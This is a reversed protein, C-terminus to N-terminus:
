PHDDRYTYHDHLNRLFEADYRRIVLVILCLGAVLGAYQIGQLHFATLHGIVAGLMVGLGLLAGYVASPSILLLTAAFMEIGGILYRGVPEMGLRTFLGVEMAHGALKLYAHYGLIGAAALQALWVICTARTSLPHPERKM